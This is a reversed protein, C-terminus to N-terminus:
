GIIKSIDLLWVQRGSGGHPSDIAVTKGDRSCRPHLDCRWEGSYVKPSHFGGLVVKKGSPVHYLYLPQLRTKGDPYSDNLIWEGDTGPVYTNHGDRTMAEAGVPEFNSTHDQYTYFGAPKGVPRTWACLTQPDRWIFHSVLQDTEFLHRDSGDLAASWMRTKFGRKFREGPKDSDYRWRHLFVFRESDPSVLLHNVYNWHGLLSEGLHPVAALEAISIILKTEGTSLDVRWIGSEEPTKEDGWADPVGQYGYGPRLINIRSFDASVAYKGNPAVAYVPKPLTRQKGTKINLIRTVYQGDERDNWLVEETSGPRWQLMCGQQWGWADSKGLRQFKKTGRDVVGVQIQDEATPSRHEFTIENTLVQQGTVDFEDKDYYGYWHHHPTSTLAEIPVNCFTGNSFKQEASYGMQGLGLLSTAAATSQLFTRRKMLPDIRKFFHRLQPGSSGNFYLSYGEMALKPPFNSVM